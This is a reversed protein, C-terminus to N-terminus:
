NKCNQTKKLNETYRGVMTPRSLESVNSCDKQHAEPLVVDPMLPKCVHRHCQECCEKGACSVHCCPQSDIQKIACSEGGDPQGRRLLSSTDICTSKTYVGQCSAEYGSHASTHPCKLAWPCKGPVIHYVHTYVPNCSYVHTYLTYNHSNPPTIVLMCSYVMYAYNYMSHM